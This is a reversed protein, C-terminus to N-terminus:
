MQKQTDDQDTKNLQYYIWEQYEADLRDDDEMARPSYAMMMRKMIGM